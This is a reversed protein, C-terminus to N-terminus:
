MKGEAKWERVMRGVVEDLDEEELGLMTMAFGERRTWDADLAGLLWVLNEIAELDGGDAKKKEAREYQKSEHRRATWSDGTAKELARLVGNQTVLFSQIYVM